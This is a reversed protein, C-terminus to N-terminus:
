NSHKHAKEELKQLRKELGAIKATIELIPGSNKPNLLEVIERLRAWLKKIEKEVNDM